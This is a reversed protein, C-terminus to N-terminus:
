FNKTTTMVLEAASSFHHYSNCFFSHNMSISSLKMEKHLNRSFRGFPDTATPPGSTSAATMDTKAAKTHCACCSRSSMSLNLADPKSAKKETFKTSINVTLTIKISEPFTESSQECHTAPNSIGGHKSNNSSHANKRYTFLHVLLKRIIYM